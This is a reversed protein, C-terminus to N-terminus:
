DKAFAPLVEVTIPLNHFKIVKKLKKIWGDGQEEDVIESKNSYYFVIAGSSLKDNFMAHQCYGIAKMFKAESAKAFVCSVDKFAYETKKRAMFAEDYTLLNKEYQLEAQSKTFDNLISKLIGNLQQKSECVDTFRSYIAARAADVHHGKSLDYNHRFLYNVINRKLDAWTNPATVKKSPKNEYLGVLDYNDQRQLETDGFESENIYIVPLIEWGIMNETAAFRSNGDIIMKNGNALVVVVIPGFIERANAPDEIIATKIKSVHANDKEKSRVQNRSYKALIDRSVLHIEFEKNEIRASLRKAFDVDEDEILLPMGEGRGEIFNVILKKTEKPILSEDGKSANNGPNYLRDKAVASAYNLAFWEVSKAINAQKEEGIYLISKKLLGYSYDRWFDTNKLSTIYTHEEDNPSKYGINMKGNVTNKWAYVFCKSM